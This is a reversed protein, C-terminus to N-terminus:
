HQLTCKLLRGTMQPMPTHTPTLPFPLSRALLWLAVKVSHSWPCSTCCHAARFSQLMLLTVLEHKQRRYLHAFWVTLTCSLCHHTRANRRVLDLAATMTATCHISASSVAALKAGNWSVVARSLGRSTHWTLRLVAFQLALALMDHCPNCVPVKHCQTHKCACSTAEISGSSSAVACRFM